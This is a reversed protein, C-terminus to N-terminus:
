VKAVASPDTMKTADRTQVPAPPNKWKTAGLAQALLECQTEYEPTAACTECTVAQVDDSCPCPQMHGNIIPSTLNKRAPQCAIYGTVGGLVLPGRATIHTVSGTVIPGKESHVFWHIRVQGNKLCKIEVPVGM